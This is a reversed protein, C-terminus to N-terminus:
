QSNVSTQEGSIIAACENVWDIFRVKKISAETDEWVTAHCIEVFGEEQSQLSYYGSSANPTKFDSLGRDFDTVTFVPLETNDIASIEHLKGAADYTISLKDSKKQSNPVDTLQINM